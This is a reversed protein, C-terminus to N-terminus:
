AKTPLTLHTYSVARMFRVVTPHQGLPVSDKPELTTSLASRYSNITSYAKGKDVEETLFHIINNM